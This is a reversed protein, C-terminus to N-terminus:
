KRGDEKWFNPNGSDEMCISVGNWQGLMSCHGIVDDHGKVEEIMNSVDQTTYKM